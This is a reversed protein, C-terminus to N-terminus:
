IFLEQLICPVLIVTQFLQFIIDHRYDENM